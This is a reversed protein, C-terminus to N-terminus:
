QHRGNDTPFKTIDLVRFKGPAVGLTWTSRVGPSPGAAVVPRASWVASPRAAWPGFLGRQDNLAVAPVKTPLPQTLLTILMLAAGTVAGCVAGIRAWRM